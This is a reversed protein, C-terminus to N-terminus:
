LNTFNSLDTVFNGNTRTSTLNQGNFSQATILDGETGIQAIAATNTDVGAQVADLQAKTVADGASTGSAMGTVKQNGMKLDALMTNYGDINLCQAIGDALDQDHVDHRTAIIKIGAQYDQFWTTSGTFDPNTREFTGDIKWPM